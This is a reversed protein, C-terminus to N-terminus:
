WWIVHWKAKDVMNIANNDAQNWWCLTNTGTFMPWINYLIFLKAVAAGVPEWSYWIMGISERNSTIYSTHNCCKNNCLNRHLHAHHAKHKRPLYVGGTALSYGLFFILASKHAGMGLFSRKPYGYSPKTNTVTSMNFIPISLFAYATISARGIRASKMGEKNESLAAINSM